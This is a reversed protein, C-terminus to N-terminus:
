STEKWNAGSKFECPIRLPVGYVNMPLERQLVEVVNSEVYDVADAKCQGFISDHVQGLIQIDASPGYSRDTFRQELEILSLNVADGISSQPLFAYAERYTNDELRGFFIRQRGFCNKLRRTQRISSKIRHRWSVLGQLNNDLARFCDRATAQTFRLHPLRNNVNEALTKAGMSYNYGHGVTKALQRLDGVIEKPEVGLIISGIFEHYFITDPRGAGFLSHDTLIKFMGEDGSDWAVIYSEASSLDAQWFVWGPDPV